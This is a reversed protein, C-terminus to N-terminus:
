ISLCLISSSTAGESDDEEEPDSFVAEEDPIDLEEDVGSDATESEKGSSEIMTVDTDTGPILYDEAQSPSSEVKNFASTSSEELKHALM